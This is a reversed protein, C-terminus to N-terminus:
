WDSWSRSLLSSKQKPVNPKRQNDSKGSALGFWSLSNRNSIRNWTWAKRLSSRKPLKSINSLTSGGATKSPNPIETAYAQRKSITRETDSATKPGVFTFQSKVTLMWFQLWPVNNYTYYIASSLGFTGYLSLTESDSRWSCVCSILELQHPKNAARVGNISAAVSSNIVSFTRFAM